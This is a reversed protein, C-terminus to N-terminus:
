YIKIPTDDTIDLYARPNVYSGNVQISFHVHIGQADGTAGAGAIAEGQAVRQGTSVFLMSNHAYVSTVGLDEHYIMVCNGLGGSWGAFTVVGGAGAYVPDGYPIGAIDIGKHGAYGGDWYAWQSIYGGEVPWLFKGYAATGDKFTGAPTPKAGIAIIESVPAHLQRVQKITRGTEVGNVYTVDATIENEGYQGEQTIRSSGVYIGSDQYTETSYPVTNVNYVETRTISVSLFPIESSIKIRDGSDLEMDAFGPNLAELEEFTLNVNEAIVSQNEDDQVTYYSADEKTSSLLDILWNEDILNETLYLGAENYRIVDAFNVTENSNNTEYKALLSDLTNKVNTFDTLAGYFVDNIFFGYGYELSVGSNQLILDAIQYKTLTENYEIQEISYSPIAEIEVGNGLYNVREQLVEKADLFVQENEIYGLFKGNVNLKVAYNISNAYTIVSFLFFVSIVPVAFNFFIVAIGNKGFLLRGIFSLSGGFGLRGGNKKKINNLAKTNGESYKILSTVPRLLFVSIKKFFSAIIGRLRDTIRWLSRAAFAVCKGIYVASICFTNFIYGGFLAILTYLEVRMDKTMQINKDNKNKKKITETDGSPLKKTINKM